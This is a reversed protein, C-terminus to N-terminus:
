HLSSIQVIGDHYLHWRCKNLVCVTWCWSPTHCPLSGWLPCFRWEVLLLLSSAEPLLWDTIPVLSLSWSLVPYRGSPRSSCVLLLSVLVPTFCSPEQGWLVSPCAATPGSLIKLHILVLCGRPLCGQMLPWSKSGVPPNPKQGAREALGAGKYLVWITLECLSGSSSLQVPPLHHGVDAKIRGSQSVSNAEAAPALEAPPTQLVQLCAALARMVHAPGWFLGKIGGVIGAFLFM